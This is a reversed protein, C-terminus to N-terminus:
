LNRKLRLALEGILGHRFILVCLLFLAGQTVIVWQGLVSLYQLMAAFVFAGLIPGLYTGMGGILVMLIVDGSMSWHVDSLGATQTVLAKMAGALGALGASLVFALWKYRVTEYGLSQARTENQRIAQLVDGFPSTIIRAILMQGLLFLLLIFYYIANIQTLDILGLLHGRPFGQIGDEGHTFPSQLYVFYLMQALALTTMSFYIGQRRIAIMGVIIGLLLTAILAFSLALEPPVAWVKLAHACLYGGTGFFMAHGFSALGAHGILLNFASAFLAFCLAQMIFYPYIWGLVPVLALGIILGAFLIQQLRTEKEIWPLFSRARM